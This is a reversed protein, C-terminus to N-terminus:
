MSPVPAGLEALKALRNRVGSRELIRGDTYYTVTIRKGFFPETLHPIQANFKYLNKYTDILKYEDDGSYMWLRGGCRFDGISMVWSPGINSKDTHLKTTASVNIAISTARANPIVRSLYQFLAKTLNPAMRSHVSVGLGTKYCFSGGLQLRMAIPSAKSAASVRNKASELGFRQHSLTELINDCDQFNTEPAVDKEGFTFRPPISRPQNILFGDRIDKRVRGKSFPKFVGQFFRGAGLDHLRGFSMGICSKLRDQTARRTARRPGRRLVM